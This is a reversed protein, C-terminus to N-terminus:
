TSEANFRVQDYLVKLPIKKTEAIRKLEEDEPM